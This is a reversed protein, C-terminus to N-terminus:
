RSCVPRELFEQNNIKPDNLKILLQLALRPFRYQHTFGWEFTDEMRTVLDKREYGKGLLIDAGVVYVNERVMKPQYNSRKLFLLIFSYFFKKLYNKCM